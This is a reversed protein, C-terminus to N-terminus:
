EVKRGDCIRGCVPCTLIAGAAFAFADIIGGERCHWCATSYDNCVKNPEVFLGEFMDDTWYKNDFGEVLYRSNNADTITVVTGGAAVMEGSAWWYDYRDAMYYADDTNLDSRVIVMDGVQYLM